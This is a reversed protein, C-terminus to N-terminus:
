NGRVAGSATDSTASAFTESRASAANPKTPLESVEGAPAPLARSADEMMREIRVLVDTGRRTLVAPRPPSAASGKEAVENRPPAAPAPPLGALTKIEIGQHAYVMAAHWIMAPLSGGTMRNTSSYDDNGVWVGAVLNASYGVFWADRYNNTTGTKGAIRVGDILARRGTGEEAVKNMMYIMDTAVKEPLVQRPKPGDRDFRWVVDGAGTRVELIAHPTVAKGLNPFTAYAVTHDLVTVEDAGIPLSPTDPLPTRLGMAKANKVIAARGVKANGKGIAISLKVAVTNISRKLADVLQMSGSYGGSYNHPCWNGICVPGDVVISKPTMGHELATAYVYPKFSSGPQRLADTARNFQSLTYDRGGVMARVGGELDAVVLASQSAHYDRGYQKLLNEVSDDAVRQLGSDLSTRVLFVRENMSKPFTSVLKKMEDFAYDLFYNPARDDRRDLAMAPNRRAGFVQGETMMGSEVLNDLVVNARARAAPLNIHPAFKTPAKFMGALMASEALNVDRASKNFYFQAAADVGFAGGGLYARDLYLKLIENKTLRSELWLALFAEKIKREITRENTLFLNKALQQTISSGGQRVSGAQTNTVLARVTGAIDIGFHEYFRRDETALTAKILADPFESLPIADNHKIGRSGIENGYRDLFTVALESKKLWDDDATERFAPLALALMVVAGAAAFTAAESLPEVFIWRRWGGIHFRDMFMSFRVWSERLGRGSRFLLDDFRADLDLLVRKLRVGLKVKKREPDPYLKRL